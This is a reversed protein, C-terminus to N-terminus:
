PCPSFALVPVFLVLVPVFLNPIYFLYFIVLLNTPTGICLTDRQLAPNLRGAALSLIKQNINLM